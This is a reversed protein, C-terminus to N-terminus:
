SAVVFIHGKEDECRIPGTDNAMSDAVTTELAKAEANTQLVLERATNIIAIRIDVRRAYPVDATHILRSPIGVEKGASVM